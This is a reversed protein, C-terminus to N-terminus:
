PAIPSLLFSVPVADHVKPRAPTSAVTSLFNGDGVSSTPSTADRSNNSSRHVVVDRHFTQQVLDEAASDEGGRPAMALGMAETKSYSAFFSAEEPNQEARRRGIGSGGGGAAFRMEGFSWNNPAIVRNHNQIM